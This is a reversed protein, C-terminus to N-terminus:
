APEYTRAFDEATCPYFGNGDPEQIVWDGEKVFAEMGMAKEVRFVLQRKSPLWTEFYDGLWLELRQRAKDEWIVKVARVTVPKKRYRKAM